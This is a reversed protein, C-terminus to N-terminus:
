CLQRRKYGSAFTWNKEGSNILSLVANALCIVGKDYNIRGVYLITKLNDDFNTKNKISENYKKSVNFKDQDIGKISGNKLVVLKNKCIWLQSKLYKIQSIGDVLSKISKM